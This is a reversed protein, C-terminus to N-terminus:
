TLKMTDTAKLEVNRGSYEGATMMDNGNYMSEKPVAENYKKAKIVVNRDCYDGTKM